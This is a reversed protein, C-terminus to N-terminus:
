KKEGRKGGFFSEIAYIFIDKPVEKYTAAKVREGNVLLQITSTRSDVEFRIDPANGYNKRVIKFFEEDNM